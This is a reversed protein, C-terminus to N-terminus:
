RAPCRLGDSPVALDILYANVAETVCSTQPYATHGEGEWTLVVGVGLTEALRPAQEYPTAPDGTTGVVLIPPSGAAPGAPYPDRGGPWYACTLMGVALAAGFMPYDRRWQTQLRRIEAVDPPSQGDVCNVALNADFLNSYTGDPRRGTYQDALQFVGRPDDGRLQSIATALGTWGTESYLSAVLAYFVWGPTARRGDPDSVPAARAREIENMIVARSDPAIPCQAPVAACWRTFAALAQEFGRAQTRSGSVLDQGPDIAGDLVLARVHRPFLQAYTAGLLTGYSYGLYTLREDGLAVRVADMDRAAQRTSYLRLQAGYRAGCREGIRESLAVLDAFGADGRPDPDAGFATDWDTDSVCRIPSSRGVGRPDFGVIDFRRLIEEPLGGAPSGLTLAVATDVGPVGPGGPNVVLSGIRDRQEDSRARILAIEFTGGAGPASWDRPVEITACAYSIGTPTQGYLERPIHPCPQWAATGPDTGDEGARDPLGLPLSCGALVITAALALAARPMYRRRTTVV